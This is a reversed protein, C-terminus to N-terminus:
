TAIDMASTELKSVSVPTEVASTESSVAAVESSTAAMQNESVSQGSTVVGTKSDTVQTENNLAATENDSASLKSNTVENESSALSTDSEDLQMSDSKISRNSIQAVDTKRQTIAAFSAIAQIADDLGPITNASMEDVIGIYAGLINGNVDIEPSDLKIKKSSKNMSDYKLSISSSKLSFMNKIIKITNYVNMFTNYTMMLQSYLAPLAGMTDTGIVDSDSKSFARLDGSMKSVLSVIDGIMNKLSAGGRVSTTMGRVGSAGIDGSLKSGFWTKISASYSGQMFCNPASIGITGPVVSVSSSFSPINFKPQKPAAGDSSRYDEIYGTSWIPDGFSNKLSVGDDKITIKSRGVQLTISNAACIQIDKGANIYQSQASQNLVDKNSYMNIGEFFMKSGSSSSGKHIKECDDVLNQISPEGAPFFWRTMFADDRVRPESFKGNDMNFISIQSYKKQKEKKGLDYVAMPLPMNSELSVPSKYANPTESSSSVSASRMFSSYIGQSSKLDIPPAVVSNYLSGVVVPLAPNGNVFNVMVEQGKRPIEFKGSNPDAWIQGFRAHLWMSGFDPQNDADTNRWNMLIKVRCTDSEIGVPNGGLDAGFQLAAAASDAAKSVTRVNGEFAAPPNEVTIVRASLTSNIRPTKVKLGPRYPQTLEQATFRTRFSSMYDSKVAAGATAFPTTKALFDVRTILGSIKGGPFNTLSFATGATIGRNSTVGHWKYQESRLRQAAICKLKKRYRPTESKNQLTTFGAEFNSILMNGAYAGLDTEQNVETDDYNFFTVDAQRYDYDDLRVAGPAVSEGAAFESVMEEHGDPDFRLRSDIAPNSDRLIMKHVPGKKEDEEQRFSYYIGEAEMLRSIFDFDSEDYQVCQEFDYYKRVENSSNYLEDQFEIKWAALINHIISRPSMNHFVRSKRSRKLLYLGPRLIVSYQYLDTNSVADGHQTEYCYYGEFIFDTIVGNFQRWGGRNKKLKVTTNRGLMENVALPAGTAPSLIKLNLCFPAALAEYSGEIIEAILIKDNGFSDKGEKGNIKIQLDRNDQTYLVPM